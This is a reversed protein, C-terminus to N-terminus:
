SIPENRRDPNTSAPPTAGAARLAQSISAGEQLANEYRITQDRTLSWLRGRWRGGIMQMGDLPPQSDRPPPPLVPRTPAKPPAAVVASASAAPPKLKARAAGLLAAESRNFRLWAERTYRQIKEGKPTFEAGLTHMADIQSERDLPELVVELLRTLRAAERAILTRRHQRADGGPVPDVITLGRRLVPEVGLLDLALSREDDNWGDLAPDELKLGLTTWCILM